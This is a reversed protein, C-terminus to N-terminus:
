GSTESEQYYSELAEEYDGECIDEIGSARGRREKGSGKEKGKCCYRRAKKLKAEARNRQNSAHNFSCFLFM